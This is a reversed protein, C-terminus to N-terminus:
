KKEFWRGEKGCRNFLRSALWDHERQFSCYYESSWEDAKGTVLSIKSIVAQKCRPSRGDELLVNKCDVCYGM